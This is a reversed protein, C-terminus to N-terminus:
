NQHPIKQKLVMIDDRVYIIDYTLKGITLENQNLSWELQTRYDEKKVGTGCSFYNYGLYKKDESLISQYRYPLRGEYERLFIWFKEQYVNPHYWNGLILQNIESSSPHHYKLSDILTDNNFIYHDIITSHLYYSNFRRTMTDNIKGKQYNLELHTNEDIVKYWAGENGLPIYPYSTYIENGYQDVGSVYISDLLKTNSSDIYVYGEFMIGEDNDVQSFYITSDKFITFSIESSDKLTFQYLSSLREGNWTHTEHQSSGLVENGAYEINLEGFPIFFDKLAPQAISNLSFLLLFYRM